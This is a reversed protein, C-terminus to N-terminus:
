SKPAPPAPLDSITIRDGTVAFVRSRIGVFLPVGATLSTFVHVETPVPDLLHSVFLGAANPPRPMSLCSRTFERNEGVSGDANITARFHGGMPFEGQRVQPTLLYLDISADAAEPPVVVTNFPQDGCPRRGLRNATERASVLRRQLATLVPREAAAFVQRSVVQRNEVRGRYFAVPNDAPGGYFIISYADGDRDVIYGSLGISRYDPLNAVMDDTGVWAARDLEFLLRGRAVARELQAQESASVAAAPPSNTQAAAAPSIALIAAALALPIVRRRLLMGFRDM